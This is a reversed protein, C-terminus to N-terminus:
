ILSVLEARNKVLPGTQALVCEPVRLSLKLVCVPNTFLSCCPPWFRNVSMCDTSTYWITSVCLEM